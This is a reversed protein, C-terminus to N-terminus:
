NKPQFCSKLNQWFNGHLPFGYDQLPFGYGKFPFGYRNIYVM